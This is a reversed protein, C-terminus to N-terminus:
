WSEACVCGCVCVCVRTLVLSVRAVRCTLSHELLLLRACVVWSFRDFGQARLPTLTVPRLRSASKLAAVVAASPHFPGALTLKRESTTMVLANTQILARNADYYCFGGLLLFYLWPASQGEDVLRSYKGALFELPYAFTYFAADQPIGAKRAREGKITIKNPPSLYGSLPAGAAERKLLDLVHAPGVISFPMAATINADEDQQWIPAVIEVGADPEIPLEIWELPADNGQPM